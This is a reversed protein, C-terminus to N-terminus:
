KEQSLQQWDLRDIFRMRLILLLSLGRSLNWASFAAWLGHNGWGQLLWWLPLYVLLSSFLMTRFMWQSQLAGIFVGDLFYAAFALLPLAILWPYYEATLARVEPIDTMLNLWLPKGILFLLSFLVANVVSWHLCARMAAKFRGRDRAGIADGVLAEAAQAFGDLGYAALLMLNILITNAALVADGQEAGQATFFMISAMLILTRLFLQSNNYLLLRYRQLDLLARKHALGDIIPRWLVVLALALGLYESIVTAIAAGRSNMGFEVILLWDLFINCGNVLVTIALAWGSRQQGILWGTAAFTALQAPSGWLRLCVYEEALAVSTEPTNMLKVAYEIFIPAFILLTASLGLALILAQMLIEHSSQGRGRAQAVLGTTGMRLFALGWFVFSLLSTGIAVASLYAPDDLHGLIATDVLGLLPVSLNALILPAAITFVRRHLSLINHKGPATRGPLGFIM